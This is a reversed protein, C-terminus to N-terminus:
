PVAELADDTYTRRAAENAHAMSELGKWVTLAACTPGAQLGPDSVPKGEGSSSRCGAPPAPPCYVGCDSRCVVSLRGRPRGYFPRHTEDKGTKALWRHWAAAFERPLGGLAAERTM